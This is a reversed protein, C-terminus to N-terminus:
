RQEELRLFEKFAPWIDQKQRIPVSKYNEATVASSFFDLLSSNGSYSGPPKIEGYGFLNCAQCLELAAALAKANDSGFNDGDSCHFAYINWHSPHYREQIIHLAKNYGSSIFTGGSEGRRFFEEETAERAETDHSIFVVETTAYKTSVFRHLLFFFSRALYKKSVDMSGSTDMICIVVANSERRLKPNRHRFRLDREWFPSRVPLSFGARRAPRPVVEAAVGLDPDPAANGESVSSRRAIQLRRVREIASRHLSLRARVGKRRYGLSKQNRELEITKLQKREQNPLELDEFMIEILEDLTIETEYYDSGATDGAQESGPQPTSDRGIVQGPQTQGEGQGVQPHNAGFSFRYEKIGRIPVKVIRDRSKGIIAEEAIIDAINERIAQRVKLRHRSRDGASRDSRQADSPQWERIVIHSMTRERSIFRGQKLTRSLEQIPQDRSGEGLAPPLGANRM